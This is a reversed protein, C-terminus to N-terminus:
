SYHSSWQDTQMTIYIVVKYCLFSFKDTLNEDIYIISWQETPTIMKAILSFGLQRHWLYMDSIDLKAYRREKYTLWM